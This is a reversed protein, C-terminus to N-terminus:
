DFGVEAYRLRFGARRRCHFAHHCDDPPDNRVGRHITSKSVYQYMLRATRSGKCCQLTRIRVCAMNDSGCIPSWLVKRTSGAQKLRAIAGDGLLQCPKCGSRAKVAIDPAMESGSCQERHAAPMACSSPPVNAESRFGTRSGGISVRVESKRHSHIPPLAPLVAEIRRLKYGHLRANTHQVELGCM